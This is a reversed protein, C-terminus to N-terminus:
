FFKDNEKIRLSPQINYTNTLIHGYLEKRYLM